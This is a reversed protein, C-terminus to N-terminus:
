QQPVGRWSGGGEGESLDSTPWGDICAAPTMVEHSDHKQGRLTSVRCTPPSRARQRYGQDFLTSSPFTTM